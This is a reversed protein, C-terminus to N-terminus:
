STVLLQNKLIKTVRVLMRKDLMHHEVPVSLGQFCVLPCTLMHRDAKREKQRDTIDKEDDSQPPTMHNRCENCQMIRYIIKATIITIM